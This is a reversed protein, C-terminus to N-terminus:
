RSGVPPARHIPPASVCPLWIIPFSTISAPNGARQQEPKDWVSSSTNNQQFVVYSGQVFVIHYQNCILNKVYLISERDYDPFIRWWFLEYWRDAVIVEPKRGSRMGLRIDDNVRDSGLEFAFVSSATIQAAPMSKLFAVTPEFDDQITNFVLKYNLVSVQVILLSAILGCRLYFGWGKFESLSFWVAATAAYLPMIMGLYNHAKLSDGFTMLALCAALLLLCVGLAKERTKLYHIVAGICIVLLLIPILIGHSPVPRAWIGGSFHAIYRNVEKRVAVFPHLFGFGRTGGPAHSNAFIQALFYDPHKAIYSTWGAMLAVYPTIAALHRPRLNHRDYLLVLIALFAVWVVGNPHTFVSAATLCNASLFAVQFHKERLLLYSALAASGLGVCMMDMRGDAASWLFTFDFALLFVTLSGALPNRTIREVIFYWAALAIAGWTASLLRMQTLGFGFIRYWGAQTVLHLPMVWYTYQQIGKLEGKLWSGTPELVSTGMFGHFALNYAPSALWGEDIFPEKSITIKYTAVCYFVAAGIVLILRIRLFRPTGQQEDQCFPADLNRNENCVGGSQVTSAPM